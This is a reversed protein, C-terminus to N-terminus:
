QEEVKIQNIVDDFNERKIEDWEGARSLNRLKVGEKELVDAAYKFAKLIYEQNGELLREKKDSCKYFHRGDENIKKSFDLDVGLLYIEKFGMYCAIQMADYIVTNGIYIGEVIDKSFNINKTNIGGFQYIENERWQGENFLHRIFKIGPLNEIIDHDNKCIISDVCVYYNPRWKTYEYARYIRNVGFCIENLDMLQQLDEYRLSPANGIIFCRKGNYLNKFNLLEKNKYRFKNIYEKEIFIVKEKGYLETIEKSENNNVSDPVVLKYGDKLKQKFELIEANISYESMLYKKIMDSMPSNNLLCVKEIKYLETKKILDVVNEFFGTQMYPSKYYKKVNYSKLVKIISDSQYYSTIYIKKDIKDLDDLGIIRIGDVTKDRLDENSDIIGIINDKGFFKIVGECNIGAGFLYFKEM